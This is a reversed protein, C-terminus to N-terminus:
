LLIALDQLLLTAVPDTGAQWVLDNSLDNEVPICLLSDKADFLPFVARQLAKRLAALERPTFAPAFFVSKQVRKCGRKALLKATKDRLRDDSIDYCLFYNM